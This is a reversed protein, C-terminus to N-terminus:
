RNGYGFMDVCSKNFECYGCPWKKKGDLGVPIGDYERDPPIDSQVASKIREVRDMIYRIHNPNKEVWELYFPPLEYEVGWRKNQKMTKQLLSFDAPSVVLLGWNTNTAEMYSQMQTYVDPEIGSVSSYKELYKKYVFGTREKIEIVFLESGDYTAIADPRGSFGEGILLSEPQEIRFGAKKLVAVWVLESLIGSVQRMKWAPDTDFDPMRDKAHFWQKLICDEVTSPSPISHSAKNHEAVWETALSGITNWEDDSIESLSNFLSQQLQGIPILM